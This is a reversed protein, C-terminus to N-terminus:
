VSLTGGSSNSDSRFPGSSTRYSGQLSQRDGRSFDSAMTPRHFGMVGLSGGADVIVGLCHRCDALPKVLENYIESNMWEADPVIASAVFARGRPHRIGGQAWVDRQWWGNAYERVFTADMNCALLSAQGSTTDQLTALTSEAGLVSRMNDYCQQWLGADLTADYIGAILDDHAVTPPAM